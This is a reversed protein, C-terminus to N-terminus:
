ADFHLHECTAFINHIFSVSAVTNYQWIHILLFFILDKYSDNQCRLLALESGSSTYILEESM